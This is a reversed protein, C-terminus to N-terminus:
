YESQCRSKSSLTEGFLLTLGIYVYWMKASVTFICLQFATVKTIDEPSDSPGMTSVAILGVALQALVVPALGFLVRRRHSCIAYLRLHMCYSIVSLLIRFVESDHCGSRETPVSPRMSRLVQRREQLQCVFILPAPLFSDTVSHGVKWHWGASHSRM